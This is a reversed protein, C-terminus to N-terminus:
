CQIYIYVFIRVLDYERPVHIVLHNRNKDSSTWVMLKDHRMLDIIRLVTETHSLVAFSCHDHDLRIEVDRSSNKDGTWEIATEAVFFLRVDRTQSSAIANKGADYDGIPPAM